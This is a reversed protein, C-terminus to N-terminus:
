RWSPCASSPKWHDCFESYGWLSSLRSTGGRTPETSLPGWHIMEYPSFCFNCGWWQMLLLLTFASFLSTSLPWFSPQQLTVWSCDAFMCDWGSELTCVCVDMNSYGHICMWTSGVESPAFALQMWYFSCWSWCIGGCASVICPSVRKRSQATLPGLWGCFWSLVLSISQLIFLIVNIEYSPWLHM